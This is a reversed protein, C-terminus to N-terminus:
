AAPAQGEGTAAIRVAIGDLVSQLGLEFADALDDFSGGEYARSITPHDEPVFFHEWFDSRAEWWAEESVGTAAEAEAAHVEAQATGVVFASVLQVVAVWERSPLGTEAAAALMAEFNAMLNPGLPPRAMSVGLTWPHRRYHALGERAHLELKARWGEVGDRSTAPEALVHDLMLDLLEAKAPVYRYLSMTGVGLKDAIHRMSVAALGEADAIAVAKEVIQDISLAPKPGRTPPESRRWLLLLSRSPEGRGSFETTM